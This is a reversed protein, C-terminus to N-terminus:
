RGSLRGLTGRHRAVLQYVRETAGPFRESAPALLRLAPLRRLLPPFAAGASYRCGDEEVLHWSAYREDPSLDALLREGTESGIPEFALEHRRDLARLWGVSRRCFRCGEDYLVTPRM